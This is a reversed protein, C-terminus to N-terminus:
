HMSFLAIASLKPGMSTLLINYNSTFSDIAQQVAKAGHDDIGARSAGFSMGGADAFLDIGIMM